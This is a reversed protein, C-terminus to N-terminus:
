GLLAQIEPEVGLLDDIEANSNDAIPLGFRRRIDDAYDDHMEILIPEFGEALAATGTTGSGAFPDLVTGGAPTVLRCLWRILAVPKVTPHKSGDRDNRTAKPCYFVPDPAFVNFFRAASGADGRPDTGDKGRRMEGYTHQNKRTESSSSRAIQGASDPFLAVVEASGDHILNAPWRGLETTGAAKSGGALSGDLRGSYTNNDTDKYCGIIMRRGSAEVRCGDINIAGVGHTLINSAGNKAEFPRQGVYIPELAPKLAQGGYHWGEWVKGEPSGPAYQGPQYERDDLKEWSGDKNQDAGPRIRRVPDGAAVKAGEAGLAQDIARAANHAKPFGQGYAWGLFPHIIFGADEM